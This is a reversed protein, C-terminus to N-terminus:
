SHFVDNWKVQLSVCQKSIFPHKTNEFLNGLKEIKKLKIKPDKNNNNKGLKLKKKWYRKEIENKIAKFHDKYTAIKEM